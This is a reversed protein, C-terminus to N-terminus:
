GILLFTECTVRTAILVNRFVAVTASGPQMVQAVCMYTMAFGAGRESIALYGWPPAATSPGLVRGRTHTKRSALQRPRYNQTVM